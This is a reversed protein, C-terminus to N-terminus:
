LVVVPRAACGSLQVGTPGVLIRADLNPLVALAAVSYPQDLGATLTRHQVCHRSAHQWVSSLQLVLATIMHARLPTGPLRGLLFLGALLTTLVFNSTHFCWYM